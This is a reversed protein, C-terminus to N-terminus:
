ALTVVDGKDDVTHDRWYKDWDDDVYRPVQGRPYRTFGAPPEQNQPVCTRGTGNVHIVPYSGSSCVPERRGCGGALVALLVLLAALRVKM